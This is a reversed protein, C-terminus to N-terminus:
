LDSQYWSLSVLRITLLPKESFVAACCDTLTIYILNSRITRILFNTKVKWETECSFFLCNLLALFVHLILFGGSSLSLVCKRRQKEAKNTTEKSLNVIDSTQLYKYIVDTISLNFFYGM